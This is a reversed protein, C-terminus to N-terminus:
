SDLNLPPFPIGTKEVFILGPSLVYVTDGKDTVLILWDIQEHQPADVCKGVAFGGQAYVKLRKGIFPHENVM